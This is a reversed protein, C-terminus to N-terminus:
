FERCQALISILATSFALVNIFSLIADMFSHLSEFVEKKDHRLGDRHNSRSTTKPGTVELDLIEVDGSFDRSIVLIVGYGAELHCCHQSNCGLKIVDM